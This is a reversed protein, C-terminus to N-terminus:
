PCFPPVEADDHNAIQSEAECLLFLVTWRHLTPNSAGSAVPSSPASSLDHMPIAGDGEIRVLIFGGESEFGLGM